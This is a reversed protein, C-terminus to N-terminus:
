FHKWILTGRTQVMLIALFKLWICRYELTWVKYTFHMRHVSTYSFAWFNQELFPFAVNRQKEQNNGWKFFNEAVCFDTFAKYRETQKRTIQPESLFSVM